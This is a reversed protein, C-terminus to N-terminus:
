SSSAHRGSPEGSPGSSAAAGDTSRAKQLIMELQPLVQRAFDSLRKGTIEPKPEASGTAIAIFAADDGRGLLRALAHYVKAEERSATWRGGVWYWHWVTVFQPGKVRTEVGKIRDPVVTVAREHLKTWEPDKSTSITNHFNILEAGEGQAFYYRVYVTVREGERSYSETLRARDGTYRPEFQRSAGADREWGDPASPADLKVSRTRDFDDLSDAYRPWLATTLAALLVVGAAASGPIQWFRNGKTKSESGTDRTDIDERWYSGIWFLALMILGFFFWGYILHDVGVALTMGSLHGIMVIMYARFWNAFIPTIISFAVFVARRTFSRYTLYAYLVGLMVSAILYRLGSCAEVVSWSGSPIIFNLGERYVPIGTARLAAVTFDATHQMMWPMLFEGIPAAFLTFALPFLILRAVDSGLVAWPALAILVVLCFHEGAQVGGANAVLWGLGAAAMPLLAWANPHPVARALEARKRWILWASMPYVILGHAFTESRWWIDAMSAFSGGHWAVIWAEVALVLGLWYIWGLSKGAGALGSLPHQPKM